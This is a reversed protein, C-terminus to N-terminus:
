CLFGQILIVIGGDWSQQTRSLALGLEYFHMKSRQKNAKQRPILFTALLGLIGEEGKELLVIMPQDEDLSGM